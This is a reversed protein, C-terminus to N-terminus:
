AWFWHIRRTGVHLTVVGPSVTLGYGPQSATSYFTRIM